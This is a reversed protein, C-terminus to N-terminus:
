RATSTISHHCIAHRWGCLLGLSTLMIIAGYGYLAYIFTTHSVISNILGFFGLVMLLPTVSSIVVRKWMGRRNFQGSTLLAVAFLPLMLSFWPWVLRRHAEAHYTGDHHTAAKEYLEDLYLESEGRERALNKETYYSLDLNYSDFNLWSVRGDRREQRLGKDLLFRPGSPTQALTAEDAMMTIINGPDRNDHVLIGRLKGAKDRQRIFVTMGDIPHNFVEEQLMVSAYNDRLFARIDKFQRNATPLLHLTFLYTLATMAIGAIMVPRALQIRSLGSAQMVTLESEVHLKHYMFIVAILLSIPLIITLLSPFMLMTLYLFDGVSLGRNIIFDVFRLAQTLWIIASLSFTILM